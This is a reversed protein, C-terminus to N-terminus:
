ACSNEKRYQYLARALVLDAPTTIKFNESSSMVLEPKLGLAEVASAEDTVVMGREQCFDLAKKLLETKFLQPTFARYLHKRDVTKEISGAYALKITDAVPSALIGGLAERKCLAILKDLDAARVFPRAADHVMVYPSNVHQLALYVTDCREKGGLVTTVKPLDQLKLSSFYHDEPSIAVILRGVAKCQALARLTAEIITTKDDLLLYQKPKDAGMRSGVGAAPVVVDVLVDNLM